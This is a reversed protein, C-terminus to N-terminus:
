WKSQKVKRALFSEGEGTDVLRGNPRFRYDRDDPPTPQAPVPLALRPPVVRHTTEIIPGDSELLFDPIVSSPRPAGIHRMAEIEEAVKLWWIAM